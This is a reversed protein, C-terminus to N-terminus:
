ARAQRQRQMERAVARHVRNKWKLSTISFPDALTKHGSGRGAPAAHANIIAANSSIGIATPRVNCDKGGPIYKSPTGGTNIGQKRQQGYM